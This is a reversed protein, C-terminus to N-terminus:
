DHGDDGGNELRHRHLEEGIKYVIVLLLFVVAAVIELIFRTTGSATLQWSIVLVALLVAWWLLYM